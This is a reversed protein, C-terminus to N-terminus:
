EASALVQAFPRRLWLALMIALPMWFFGVLAIAREVHEGAFLMDNVIGVAGVGVSATILNLFLMYGASIRARLPGPVTLALATPATGITLSAFLILPCYILLALNLTNVGVHALIVLPAVGFASLLAVRLPADRHGAAIWRDCLWGGLIVGPASFVLLILGLWFGVEQLPLGYRRALFVPAWSLVVTIPIALLAFLSFLKSFFIWNTKVFRGLGPAAKPETRRAPELATAMALAVLVGPLGVIIFTLQWPKLTGVLPLTQEGLEFVFGLVAGGVLFAIGGGFLAGSQYVGVAKGLKEKPFSDAILSYASPSLAAEGVGVGVRALFLQLFSQALGCLATAVSWLFVGIGVILRRSHRDALYAIPLGVLTYFFAFALGMLLGMATDSVGLDAKIPDVLLSLIIRDVFSFVFAILLLVVTYWARRQSPWPQASATFNTAAAAANDEEKM